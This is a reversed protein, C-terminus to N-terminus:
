ARIFYREKRKESPILDEDIIYYQLELLFRKPFFPFLRYPVLQIRAGPYLMVKERKTLGIIKNDVFTGTRSGLDEIYAQDQVVSILCHKRSLPPLLYRRGEEDIKSISMDYHSSIGLDNTRPETPDNYGIHFPAGEVIRHTTRRDEIEPTRVVRLYHELMKSEGFKMKIKLRNKFNVTFDSFLLSM